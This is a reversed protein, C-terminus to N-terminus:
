SDAKAPGSQIYNRSAQLKGLQFQVLGEAEAQSNKKKKKKKKTVKTYSQFKRLTKELLRFHSNKKKQAAM